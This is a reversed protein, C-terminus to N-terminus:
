VHEEVRERTKLWQEWRKIVHQTFWAGASQNADLEKRSDVACLCLITDKAVEESNVVDNGSFVPDSNMFEWFLPEKCRMVAWSCLAGMKKEERKYPETYTPQEDNGIEVLAVMYRKGEHGEFPDLSSAREGIQLTITSAGQKSSYNSRLYIAEGEYLTKM